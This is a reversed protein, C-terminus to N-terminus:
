EGTAAQGNVGEPPKMEIGFRRKLIDPTEPKVDSTRMWFQWPARHLPAISVKGDEDIEVHEALSLRYSLLYEVMDAALRGLTEVHDALPGLPLTAHGAISAEKQRRAWVAM